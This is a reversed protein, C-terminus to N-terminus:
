KLLVKFLSIIISAHRQPIKGRRQPRTKGKFATPDVARGVVLHVELHREAFHPLVSVLFPETRVAINPRAVEICQQFCRGTSRQPGDITSEAAFTTIALLPPFVSM